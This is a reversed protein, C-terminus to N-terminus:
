ESFGLDIYFEEVGLSGIHIRTTKLPIRGNLITKLPGTHDEIAGMTRYTVIYYEM